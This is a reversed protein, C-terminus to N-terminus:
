SSNRQIAAASSSSMWARTLRSKLIETVAYPLWPLPSGDDALPQRTKLSKGYGFRGMLSRENGAALLALVPGVARSPLTRRLLISAESLTM